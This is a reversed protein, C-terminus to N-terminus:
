ETAKADQTAQWETQRQWIYEMGDRYLGFVQWLETETRPIVFGLDCIEHVNDSTCFMEGATSEVFSWSVIEGTSALARFSVGGDAYNMEDAGSEKITEVWPVVHIETFPDAERVFYCPEPPRPRTMWTIVEPPAGDPYTQLCEHIQKRWEEPLIWQSDPVKVLGSMALWMILRDVTLAEAM